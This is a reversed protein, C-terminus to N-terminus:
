ILMQARRYQTPTTGTISKFLRRFYVPSEFGYEASLAEISRGPDAVLAYMAHQISLINKYQIPSVGTEKKFCTYFRSESLCCLAALDRVRINQRYNREICDLAPQISRSEDLPEYEFRAFLKHCLGFFRSVGAFADAGADSQHEYLFAYDAAIDETVPLPLKQVPIRKGRLPDNQWTYDFHITQFRIDPDGLWRSTYRAYKPVFLIEGAKVEVTREGERMIGRGHTLIAVNHTPRPLASYDSYNERRDPFEYINTYYIEPARPNRCLM